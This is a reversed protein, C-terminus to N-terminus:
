LHDRAYSALETRNSVGLKAYVHSLHTKVTGRSMFLREGIEPNSRGEAALQVVSLEAPTLSGWGSSPRGRRGRMRHVSEAAERLATPAAAAVDIKLLRPDDTLGPLGLAADLWLGHEIRLALAEHRLEEARSPSAHASEELADAITRPLNAARAAELARACSAEDPEGLARQAAAMYVFTQPHAAEPRTLWGLAAEPDGEALLLHGIARHLGPVFPPRTEELMRIMPELVDRAADVRGATIEVAALVSAALGIRHQDALPRAIEVAEDALRRAEPLDGTHLASEALFALATSAVGRDGRGALGEVAARLLLVARDHEDRLQHIMGLLATAGDAVFGSGAAAEDTRAQALAQGATERAADPDIGLLGVACLLRALAATEADGAETAIELAAEAVDYDLGQPRNTDAVLALGTLLRAQLASRDSPRAEIARRLLVLGEPGRGGLHWLWPLHAALERGRSPDDLTLGYEAAARLNEREPTIAARWADKGRDLLPAADRALDLCADLHRDRVAGADPADALAAAAYQRVTELMRYRTTEGVEATLLSKDVLSRLGPLVDSGHFLGSATDSGCVRRAMDLTAGGHFVGLRRFLVRDPEDLLGHSWAMSAALTQQRAPVGRPGRVLLGFRDDLGRLIEEPSLTGSWAAALEVALPIGDLRACATRVARRTGADEFSRGARAEFLAFADDPRLPPVRWVTEGPVGLPERGTALVTADPRTRLVDLVADAAAELVHECNDLVVLVPEDPPIGAVGVLEPVVLPDSTASLDTWRVAHECLRAVEAALRTKGCGGPGAVTVLRAGRLAAALAELEPGRGVFGTLQVPPRESGM